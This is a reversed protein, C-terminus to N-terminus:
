NAVLRHVIGSSYVLTGMNDALLQHHALVTIFWHICANFLKLQTEGQFEEELAGIEAECFDVM